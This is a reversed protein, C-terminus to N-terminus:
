LMDLESVGWGVVVHRTWKCGVWSCIEIGSVGWGVVVHSDLVVHTCKCGM